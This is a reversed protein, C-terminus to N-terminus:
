PLFHSWCHGRHQRLPIRHTNSSAVRWFIRGNESLPRKYPKGSIRQLISDIESSLNGQTCSSWITGESPKGPDHRHCSTHRICADEKCFRHHSFYLSRSVLYVRDAGFPPDVVIQIKRDTHLNASFTSFFSGGFFGGQRCHLRGYEVASKSM